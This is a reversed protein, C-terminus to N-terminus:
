REGLEIFRRVVGAELRALASRAQRQHEDLQRFRREVLARLQALDDGAIADRLAVDVKTGQKVLVGGDVGLYRETLDGTHEEPWYILLGPPVATVYDAHRPLLAFEGEPGEALVKTVACDVLVQTPLLVRLRVIKAGTSM